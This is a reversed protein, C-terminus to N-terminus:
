AVEGSYAETYDGRDTPTAQVRAQERKAEANLAVARVNPNSICELRPKSPLAEACAQSASTSATRTDEQNM